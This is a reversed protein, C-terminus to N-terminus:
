IIVIVYNNFFHFLVSLKYLCSLNKSSSRLACLRLLSPFLYLIFPYIIGLIFSSLSDKLFAIQTNEYVACFVAIMYWYFALM